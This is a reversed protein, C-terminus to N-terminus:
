TVDKRGVLLQRVPSFVVASKANKLLDAFQLKDLRGDVKSDEISDSSNPEFYYPELAAM